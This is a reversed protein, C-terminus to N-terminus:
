GKLARVIVHVQLLKPTKKGGKKHQPKSHQLSFCMPFLTMEVIAQIQCKFTFMLGVNLGQHLM